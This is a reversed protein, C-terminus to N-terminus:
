YKINQFHLRPGNYCYHRFKTEGDRCKAVIIDVLKIGKKKAAYVSNRDSGIEEIAEELDGAVPEHIYIVNNSDHFIAKSDRMPREGWPRLDKMEDNLQSLQIVPIEFDLTINKLERSLTAVERERNQLNGEANLLQVYDIIVLDPKLQRIRRKIAGITSIKDNIYILNDKNFNEMISLIKKWDEENLDKYKMKKTAIGTKKTINRMFIQLNSMERSIFLVKKNQSAVNLMIQLALATKGVGSRAAITTLEGNFLGGIVEDLLEVGFRIGIESDKELFALLKECISGMSDDYDNEDKLIKTLKSDFQHLSQNIDKGDGISEFLSTCNKIIKRRLYKDKLIDIHTDIAYSQSMAVLNSLYSVQVELEREDLKTKITQIDLSKNEKHLNKMINLIDKNFDVTFMDGHLQEIKDYLSEDIILSGLVSQEINIADLTAM